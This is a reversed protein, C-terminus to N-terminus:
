RTDPILKKKVQWFKGETVASGPPSRAARHSFILSKHKTVDPDTQGGWYAFKSIKKELAM